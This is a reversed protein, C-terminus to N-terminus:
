KEFKEAYGSKELFKQFDNIRMIAEIAAKKDTSTKYYSEAIKYGMWYGLDNPRGKTSSYLWGDYNKENMKSQFEEWLEKELPNAFEHVHENIHRGSILEGIFDASGEKISAALLSGGDYKQQFHILEHAIIYPIEDVPKLVSQQWQNLEDIPVDPGKGYMEVGIILGKKFTTGGSNGRGIVFYVDPFVADPYLEKLKSFIELVQAEMGAPQLSVERLSAYYEPAKRMTSTLAEASGIRNKMFAKLAPTGKDIYEKKFIDSDLSDSQDYAVWFNDIDTTIIKATQPDKSQSLVPLFLALMLLMLITRRM